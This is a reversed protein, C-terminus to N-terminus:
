KLGGPVGNNMLGHLRSLMANLDEGSRAAQPRVLLGNRNVLALGNLDRVAHWTGASLAVNYVGYALGLPRYVTGSAELFALLLQGQALVPTGSVVAHVGRYTGGPLDLTLVDGEHAGRIGDHVQLLARTRITGKATVYTEIQSVSAVVVADAQAVLEAEPLAVVSTAFATSPLLALAFFVARLM